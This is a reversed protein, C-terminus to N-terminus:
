GVSAGSQIYKQAQKVESLPFVDIDPCQLVGGELWTVLQTMYGEILAHEEAFFSLNFGAISKSELVM